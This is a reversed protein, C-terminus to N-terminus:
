GIRSRNRVTFPLHFPMHVRAVDSGSFDDARFISVYSVHARSDYVPCLVWGDDEATGGPRPVFIPEWGYCGDEFTHLEARRRQADVKVVSSSAMQGPTAHLAYIYRHKRTDFRTNIRCAEAGVNALKGPLM